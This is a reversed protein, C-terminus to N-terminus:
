AVALDTALSSQPGCTKHARRWASPTQGSAQRFRKCFHAQDTFGCRQAIDSLSAETHAMYQAALELRRRTVFAHPSEGFTRKFARSFHAESLLLLAALDAVLLPGMIHSAIYDNVKRVQWALLKGRDAAAEQAAHPDLAKRLLSAAKLITCHAEQEQHLQSVASDLLTIVHHVWEPPQRVSTQVVVVAEGVFSDMFGGRENVERLALSSAM